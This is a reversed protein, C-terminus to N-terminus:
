LVKRAWWFVMLCGVISGFSNLAFWWYNHKDLLEFNEKTFTSFTSLGGCVGTLLFLFLGDSLKGKMSGMLIGAIGCAVLNAAFTAWPFQVSTLTFLRNIGFRIVAGIGGGLFVLLTNM